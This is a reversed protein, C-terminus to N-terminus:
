RIKSSKSDYIVLEVKERIVNLGKSILIDAFKNVEKIIIEKSYKENYHYTAYCKIGKGLIIDNDICSFSWNIEQIEKQCKEKDDLLTINCEYYSAMKVGM